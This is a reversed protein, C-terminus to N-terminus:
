TSFERKLSKELSDWNELYEYWYDNWVEHVTIVLNKRHKLKSSYCSFYPFGQCDVIDFDKLKANTL